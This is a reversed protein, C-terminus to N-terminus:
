KVEKRMEALIRDGYMEVLPRYYEDEDVEKYSTIEENKLEGTHRDITATKCVVRMVQEEKQSV